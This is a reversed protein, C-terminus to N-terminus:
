ETGLRQGRGWSSRTTRTAGETNEPGNFGHVGTQPPFMQTLFGPTPILKRGDNQLPYLVMLYYAVYGAAIGLVPQEWSGGM